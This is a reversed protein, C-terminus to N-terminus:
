GRVLRLFRPDLKLGKVYKDKIANAVRLDNIHGSRAEEEDLYTEPPVTPREWWEPLQRTYRRVNYSARQGLRLDPINLGEYKGRSRAERREKRYQEKHTPELEDLTKGPPYATAFDARVEKEMANADNYPDYPRGAQSQKQKLDEYPDIPGGRPARSGYAPEVYDCIGM